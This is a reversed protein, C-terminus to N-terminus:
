ENPEVSTVKWDIQQNEQEDVAFDWPNDRAEAETCEDTIILKEVTVRMTVIWSQKKPKM